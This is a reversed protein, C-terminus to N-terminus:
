PEAHGFRLQEILNLEVFRILIRHHVPTADGHTVPVLLPWGLINAGVHGGVGILSNQKPGVRCMKNCITLNLHVNRQRPHGAVGMGVTRVSILLGLHVFSIIKKGNIINGIMKSYLFHLKITVQSNNVGVRRKVM